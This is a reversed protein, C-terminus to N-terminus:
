RKKGAPAPAAPAEPKVIELLEIEFVLTSGGPIVPPHGQDGYASDSPCVLKAKGGVKMMAVGNTWCPIVNKLPFTAPENRKYSSDFETGDTLTGRYNVKVTDDATPMPGTGETEIKIFGGMPIPKVGAEKSFKEAFEAGKKKTIEAKAALRKQAMEGVKPLYVAMNVAEPKGTIADKLGQAIANAEAATPTTTALNQGVRYGYAYFTREDETKFNDGSAAKKAAKPKAAPKAAPAAAAPADAAMVPAACLALAVSAALVKQM